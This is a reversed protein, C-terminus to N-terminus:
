GPHDVPFEVLEQLPGGGDGDLSRLTHPLGGGRRPARRLNELEVVRHLRRQQLGIWLPELAPRM